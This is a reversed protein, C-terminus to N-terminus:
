PFMGADYSYIMVKGDEGATVVKGNLCNISRVAGQESAGIGYKLCNRPYDLESALLHHCLLTGMGDGSMVCQDGVVCLSYVGNRHHDWRSVPRFDQRIDTVVLSSDAPSGSGTIIYTADSSSGRSSTVAMCSIASAGGGGSAAPAPAGRGGSLGRGAGAGIVATRSAVASGGRGRGAVTLTGGRGSSAGARSPAAPAVPTQIHAPIKHVLGSGSSRPDWIKVFGDTGCTIITNRDEMCDVATIPGPHARFRHKPQCRQLDWVIMSGSKDGSVFVDGRFGCELVPETHAALYSIPLQGVAPAPARGSSRSTVVASNSKSEAVDAENGFNWVAINGDYSCSMAINFRADSVVKSIPHISGNQLDVCQTRNRNSWLCLKGDM